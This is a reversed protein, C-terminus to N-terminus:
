KRKAIWEERLDEMELRLVQQNTPSKRKVESKIKAIKVQNKESLENDLRNMAKRIKVLERKIRNLEQPNKGRM